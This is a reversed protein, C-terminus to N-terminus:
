ERAAMAKQTWEAKTFIGHPWQPKYPEFPPPTRVWAARKRRDLIDLRSLEIIPPSFDGGNVENLLRLIIRAPTRFQPPLKPLSELNLNEFGAARLAGIARAGAIADGPLIKVGHLRLTELLNPTLRISLTM